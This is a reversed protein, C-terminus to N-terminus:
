LKVEVPKLWPASFKVTIAGTEGTAQVYALLQGRFVRQVNDRYNGMDVNNSAELGLLRAPGEIACTVEDDSLVVPIGKEDVVQVVIQALGKGGAISNGEVTTKLAYARGSTQIAQGCTKNGAADLGEVELKGAAYPIDWSIFGTNDDYNKVAGVERGNLLLRAKPANTYCTVRISQGDTYNWVPLVEGFGGRRQGQPQPAPAPSTGIYAVPTESWFSHRQYGRAKVFGALNVMGSQSGRTPWAGGEGLFDYGTWLFQGMIYPNDRVAKWQALGQGNESGYIIRNPYTKHDEEYRGETYNYGVIDLADPYETANSMVVGALAATVPRSPDHQKVVAALMKAIDGMREANPQNPQYDNYITQPNTSGALAPSSYPDNPYDIENGISWAFVSVNNRNRRVIDAMDRAGWEGFFEAIGQYGPLGRNRGEIWKRKPFEWEDFGEDMVLLGLEDCIAYVDPAHTNHAMRIANAGLDKLIKLRREWVERPVAAGLVGADHHICVGKMKMWEGNLAFGKNADFQMTRIGATTVTEDVTRGNQVVTTKLKYLNPTRTSWLLPKAVTLDVTAKRLSKAPVTVRQSARAVEKGSADTLLQTVTLDAPANTGNELETDVGVVAKSANASKTYYFVGWQAIHVPDATVLWVNRYIGSGTYWRSDASKTHDVRVAIVAPKGPEVYRSIDYMFSVYGSPRKGLYRGNVWVESYNYVGEFYVYFKKGAGTQPIDVTKRYWGIGGPLYGTSSAHTTALPEEVSWDHPLDITRWEDTDFGIAQAGSLDGLHFQWGGNISEPKGFSVQAALDTLPVSVTAVGLLPLVVHKRYKSFLQLFRMM